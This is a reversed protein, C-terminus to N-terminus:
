EALRAASVAAELKRLDPNSEGPKGKLSVEMKRTAGPKLTGGMFFTEEREAVFLNKMVQVQVTMDRVSVPSQNTVSLVLKGAADYNRGVSFYGAPTRPIELRALAAFSAKGQEGDGGAAARFHQIAQDEMGEAQAMMGLAHHAPATPLLAVSREFDGRAEQAGRLKERVLGRQLYFDFYEKNRRIADSYDREAQKLNGTKARADGRLGYFLAEDPEIAIARNAKDLAKEADGQKLAKRGEDYATYAPRSKMLPAMQRRYEAEGNELGAPLTAALKRNAEVREQSPPHSALLGELWNPKRDKALRVFTEQLAIAAGPDYGAQAMYITGFHDAESEHDRGYKLGLLGAGVAAAVGAWEGHKKNAAATSIVAAGAQLVLGTEMSRAGHRAAAHVIEHSLVAALEAESKLEYLLGRNIAIKGGPMAWANPVSDNLVVFEYPLNPRGSVKALRKGVGNVYASIDPQLLYQGGGLQQGPQYNKAGISLEQSESILTLESKGTVPNTACGPFLLVSFLFLLRFRKM